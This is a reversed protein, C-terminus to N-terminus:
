PADVHMRPEVLPVLSACDIDNQEVFAVMTDWQWTMDAPIEAPVTDVLPVVVPHAEAVGILGKGM